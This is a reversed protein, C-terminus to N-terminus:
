PYFSFGSILCLVRFNNASVPATASPNAAYSAFACTSVTVAVRIVDLAIVDSGTDSMSKPVHNMLKRVPVGAIVSVFVPAAVAVCVPVIPVDVTVCIVGGAVSPAIVTVVGAGDVNVIVLVDDLGNEIGASVSLATVYLVAECVPFRFASAAVPVTVTRAPAVGSAILKPPVIAIEAVGASPVYVASKM